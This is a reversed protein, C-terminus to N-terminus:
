WLNSANSVTPNSVLPNPEGHKRYLGSAVKTLAEKETLSVQFDGERVNAATLLTVYLDAMALEFEKTKGTYNDLPNIGRDILKKQFTNESLPYSVESIIAELNTM